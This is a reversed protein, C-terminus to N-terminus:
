VKRAAPRGFLGEPRLTLVVVLIVLSMSDAFEGGLTFTTGMAVFGLLPGAILAGLNNGVGGLVLAVFGSLVYSIATEPGISIIPAAAFGTVGIIAGSIAFSLIQLQGIRFGNTRALVLDQSLANIALGTLSYNFFWRLIFYVAIALVFLIPYVAPTYTNLIYFNPFASRVSHSYPGQVNLLVAGITVSVAMTSVIWSEQKLSSRAPALTIYGQLALLVAISLAASPLGAFWEAPTPASPLILFAFLGGLILMSGQAFNLVGTANAVVNLSMAVLSYIAGFGAGRVLIIGWEDLM